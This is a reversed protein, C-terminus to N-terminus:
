EGLEAVGFRGDDYVVACGGHGQGHSTKSNASLDGYRSTFEDFDAATEPYGVYDFLATGCKVGDAGGVSGSCAVKGIGSLAASVNRDVQHHM